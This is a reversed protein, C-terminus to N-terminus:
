EEYLKRLAAEAVAANQSSIDYFGTASTSKNMHTFFISSTGDRKDARDPKIFDSKRWSRTGFCSVALARKTTVAYIMTKMSLKYWLPSFLTGIGVVVFPVFFLSMGVRSAMSMQEATKKVGNVEIVSATDVWLANIFSTAVVSLISCWFLGFFFTMCTIRTFARAKVPRGCWVLSENLDLKKEIKAKDEFNDYM